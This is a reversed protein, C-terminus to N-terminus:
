FEHGCSPCTHLKKAKKPPVESTDIEDTFFHLEESTFGWELLDQVDFSNALSEWDWDGNNRNLRINLEDVQLPTLPVDPVWCEVIQAKMQALLAIRQHGGIITGDTNIIPKDVLGFRELSQQLHSADSVSLSRPNNPHPTLSAITHTELHWKM